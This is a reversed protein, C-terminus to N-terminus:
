AYCARELPVRPPEACQLGLSSGRGIGLRAFNHFHCKETPQSELRSWERTKIGPGIERAAHAASCCCGGSGQGCCGGGPARLGGGEGGRRGRCSLAPTSCSQGRWRTLGPGMEGGRDGVASVLEVQRCQQLPCISQRLGLADRQFAHSHHFIEKVDNVGHMHLTRRLRAFCGFMGPLLFGVSRHSERQPPVPTPPWQQESPLGSAAPGSAQM